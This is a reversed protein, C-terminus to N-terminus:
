NEQRMVATATLPIQWGWLLQLKRHVAVQTYTEVGCQSVGKCNYPLPVAVTCQGIYVNEGSLAPQTGSAAPCTGTSITAPSGGTCASIQGVGFVGASIKDCAKAAIEANTPLSYPNGADFPNPTVAYRAAERVAGVMSHYSSFVLGFEFIALLLLFFAPLVLAAETITAGRERKM